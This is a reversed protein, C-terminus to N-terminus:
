PRWAGKAGHSLLEEGLAHEVGGAAQRRLLQLLGAVISRSHRREAGDGAQNPGVRAACSPASGTAGATRIRGGRASSSRAAAALLLVIMLAAATLLSRPLAAHAVLEPLAHMAAAVRAAHQTSVPRASPGLILAPLQRASHGVRHKSARLRHRDASARLMPLAPADAQAEIRSLRPVATHPGLGEIEFRNRIPSDSDGGALRAAVGDRLRVAYLAGHASVADAGRVALLRTSAHGRFDILVLEGESWPIVSVAGLFRDNPRAQLFQYELRPLWPCGISLGPPQPTGLAMFGLSDKLQNVSSQRTQNHLRVVFVPDAGGMILAFPDAESGDAGLLDGNWLRQIKVDSRTYNLVLLAGPVWPTVQVSGVFGNNFSSSIEFHASIPLGHWLGSVDPPRHASVDLPQAQVSGPIYKAWAPQAGTTHLCLAFALILPRWDTM